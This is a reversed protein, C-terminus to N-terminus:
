TNASKRACKDRYGFICTHYSGSLATRQTDFLEFRHRCYARNTQIHYNNGTIGRRICERSDDCIFSSDAHYIILSGCYSDYRSDTLVNTLLKVPAAQEAASRNHRQLLLRCALEDVTATLYRCRQM